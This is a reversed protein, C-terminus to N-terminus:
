SGKKRLYIDGMYTKLSIEPGGGNIDGKKWSDIVVKYVGSQTEKKQVPGESKMDIDFNSYIDGQETRVKATAKVTAPLTLDIDGNFSSFSMPTGDKVQDFLIRIDGNYTSAVVSGAISRAAISGNYNTLEISGTVNSIELDGDNYTHMEVDMGAPIEIELDIRNSWSGSQVKVYNESESVELNLGGGSIKRMGGEEEEDSDEDREPTYRVLVDKRATGKVEISGYNIYAKLKGRKGPQSLPITFEQQAYGISYLVLTIITLITRM